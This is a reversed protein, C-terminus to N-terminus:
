RWRSAGSSCGSPAEMPEGTRPDTSAKKGGAKLRELDRLMRPCVRCRYALYLSDVGTAVVRIPEEAM